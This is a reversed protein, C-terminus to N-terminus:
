KKPENEEISTFNNLLTEGDYPCIDNADKYDMKLVKDNDLKYTLTYSGDEKQIQTAGLEDMIQLYTSHPKIKRVEETPIKRVSLLKTFNGSKISEFLSSPSNALDEVGIKKAQQQLIEKTISEEFSNESVDKWLTIANKKSLSSTKIGMSNLLEKAQTYQHDNILLSAITFAGIICLIGLLLFLKKKM